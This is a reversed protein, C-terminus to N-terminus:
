AFYALASCPPITQFYNTWKKPGEISRQRNEERKQRKREQRDEAARIREFDSESKAAPWQREPITHPRNDAVVILGSRTKIPQPPTFDPKADIMLIEPERMRRAPPISALAVAALLLNRNMFWGEILERRADAASAIMSNLQSELALARALSSAFTFLDNPSESVNRETTKSLPTIVTQTNPSHM